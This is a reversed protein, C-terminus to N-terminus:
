VAVSKCFHEVALTRQILFPRAVINSDAGRRHQRDGELCLITASGRADGGACGGVM